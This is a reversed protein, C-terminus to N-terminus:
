FRGGGGGHSHGGSSMHISSGGSHGGMGSGGRDQPKPKPTHTVNRYLFRDQKHYISVSERELYDDAGSQKKVNLIQAKYGAMILLSILAGVAFGAVVLFPRFGGSSQNNYLDDYDGDYDFDYDNDDPLNDIDYASGGNQYEEVFSEVMEGYKLFAGQCDGASLKEAVADGIFNIGMDTLADILRGSTSIWYEREEMSVLLICGDESYGYEDYFDDAYEMASKGYFYDTTLVAVDMDWKDCIEQLAAELEAEESDTLLDGGDVVMPLSTHHEPLPTVTEASTSSDGDDEADEDEDVTVSSNQEPKGPEVQLGAMAPIATLNVFCCLVLLCVALSCMMRQSLNRIMKM